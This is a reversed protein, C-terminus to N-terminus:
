FQNEIDNKLALIKISKLIKSYMSWIHKEISPDVKSELALIREALFHCLYNIRNNSDFEINFISFLEKLYGDFGGLLYEEIYEYNRCYMAEVFILNFFDYFFVYENSEEIDIFYIYKDVLLINSFNMDGHQFVKPYVKDVNRCLLRCIELIFQNNPFTKLLSDILVKPSSYNEFLIASYYKKYLDMIESVCYEKESLSWDAYPRFNLLHETYLREEDSFSQIPINFYNALNKHNNKIRLYKDKDNIINIVVGKEFNFAKFDNERTVMALSCNCDCNAESKIRLGKISYFLDVTKNLVNVLEGKLSKGKHKKGRNLQKKNKNIFERSQNDSIYAIRKEKDSLKYKGSKLVNRNAECFLVIEKYRETKQYLVSYAKKIEHLLKSM